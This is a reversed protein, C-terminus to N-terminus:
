YNIRKIFENHTNINNIGGILLLLLLKVSTCETYWVLLWLRSPRSYWQGQGRGGDSDFLRRDHSGSSKRRISRTYMQM